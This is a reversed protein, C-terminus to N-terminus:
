NSQLRGNVYYKLKRGVTRDNVNLEDSLLQGNPYYYYRHCFGHFNYSATNSYTPLFLKEERMKVTGNDHYIEQEYIQGYTNIRRKVELNGRSDYSLSEYIGKGIKDNYFKNLKLKGDEYWQMEEGCPIGECYFVKSALQGTKYRFICLGDRKGLIYNSSDLLLGSVDYRLHLGNLVSKLQGSKDQNLVYSEKILLNGEATYVQKTGELLGNNYYIKSNLQGNSYYEEQVGSLKGEDYNGKLKLEGSAYYYLTKGHKVNVNSKRLSDYRVKYNLEELLVGNASWKKFNGCLLDDCYKAEMKKQGNDHYETKKGHLKGMRYESKEFVKGNLNYTLQKGHRLELRRHNKQTSTDPIWNQIWKTKGTNYWYTAKGKLAGDKYNLESKKIGSEYYETWKGDKKASNYNGKIRSYGNQYNHLYKGHLQTYLNTDVKHLRYEEIYEVIGNQYWTEKNLLMGDQYLMKSRLIGSSYWAKQVGDLKNDKYFYNAIVLGKKDYNVVSKMQGDVTTISSIIKSRHFYTTDKTIQAQLTSCAFIIFLGLLQLHKYPLKFM